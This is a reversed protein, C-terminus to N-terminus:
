GAALIMLFHSSEFGIGLDNSIKSNKLFKMGLIITGSRSQASSDAFTLDFKSNQILEEFHSKEIKKIFETYFTM